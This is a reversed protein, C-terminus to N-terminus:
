IAVFAHANDSGNAVFDFIDLNSVMDSDLNTPCLSFRQVSVLSPITTSCIRHRTRIM